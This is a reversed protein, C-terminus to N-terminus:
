PAQMGHDLSGSSPAHTPVNGTVHLGVFLLVLVIATIGFARVWRPTSPTLPETM